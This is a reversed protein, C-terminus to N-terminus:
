PNVPELVMGVTGPGAHTAVVAGIPLTGLDTLNLDGLSSRIEKLTEEGGETCLLMYQSPGHTNAYTRAHDVIDAIAKKQGRVRGAAEVHGDRVELIPKINLLGGLLAAAGGIRGNRRLFELTDVTFRISQVKQVRELTAVIDAVSAGQQALKAARLAQMGLGASVSRTDVVTVRGEFEQAALRASGVTGSLQGSIHVSMVHDASELAKRYADAFEAPSPQSTSPSKKGERVGKFIQSPTVEVGDKLMAGGFLVYLPVSVIHNAELMQPLLDSTSDTVIRIM